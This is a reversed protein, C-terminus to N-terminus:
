NPGNLFRDTLSDVRGTRDNIRVVKYSRAPRRDVLTATLNNTRDWDWPRSFGVTIKWRQSGVDFEVEELGVECINEEAFLETVYTKATRAAEKVDM